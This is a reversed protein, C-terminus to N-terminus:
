SLAEPWKLGALGRDAARWSEKPPLYVYLTSQPLNALSNKSQLASFFQVREWGRVGM